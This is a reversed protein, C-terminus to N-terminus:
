EEMFLKILALADDVSIPHTHSYKEPQEKEFYEMGFVFMGGEEKYLDFLRDKGIGRIVPVDIEYGYNLAATNTLTLNYRSKLKEYILRLDNM